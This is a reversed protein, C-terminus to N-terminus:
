KSLWVREREPLPSCHFFCLVCITFWCVCQCTGRVDKSNQFWFCGSCFSVGRLSEGWQVAIDTTVASLGSAPHFSFLSPSSFPSSCKPQNLLESESLFASKFKKLKRAFETDLTKRLLRSHATPTNYKRPLTLLTNFQILFYTNCQQSHGEGQNWGSLCM